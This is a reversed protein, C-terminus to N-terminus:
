EFKALATVISSWCAVLFSFRDAERTMHERLTQLLVECLFSVFKFWFFHIIESNITAVIEAGGGYRGLSVSDVADHPENTEVDAAPYSREDVSSHHFRPNEGRRGGTKYRHHRTNKGKLIMVHIDETYGFVKM